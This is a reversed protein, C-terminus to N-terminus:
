TTWQEWEKKAMEQCVNCYEDFKTNTKKLFNRHVKARCHQCLKIYINNFIKTYLLPDSNIERMAADDKEEKVFDKIDETM